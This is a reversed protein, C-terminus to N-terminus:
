QEGTKPEEKIPTKPSTVGTTHKNGNNLYNPHLLWDKREEFLNGSMKGAGPWPTSEHVPDEELPPPRNESVDAQPKANIPAKSITM